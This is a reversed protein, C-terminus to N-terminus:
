AGKKLMISEPEQLIQNLTQVQKEDLDALQRGEVTVVWWLTNNISCDGCKRPSIVKYTGMKPPYDWGQEFGQESTLLEEKGCVECVHKIRM